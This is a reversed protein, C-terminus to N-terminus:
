SGARDEADPGVSRIPIQSEFWLDAAPRDPGNYFLARPEGAAQWEPHDALWARLKKLGREVRARSYRGRMGISLVQVPQADVVAIQQDADDRGAPGLDATRYLFSMTWGDDRGDANRDRYDMEVPATMAIQRRQIHFFLPFFAANMGLDGPTSGSVEARRVAPYNKIEIAGPPTPDPYGQPLPTDILCRDFRFSDGDRTIQAELDGAVRKNPTPANPQPKKNTGPHSESPAATCAVILLITLM